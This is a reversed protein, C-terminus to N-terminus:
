KFARNIQFDVYDKSLFIVSLRDSSNLNSFDYCAISAATGDKFLFNYEKKNGNEGRLKRNNEVEKTVKFISRFESLITKQIEYCDKIQNKFYIRGSISQILYKKDNSKFYFYVSDYQTLNKRTLFKSYEKKVGAKSSKFFKKKSLIEDIDFHDLLSDGISIGEIQFDRIDDAKTWSQLSFILILVSLFVRM